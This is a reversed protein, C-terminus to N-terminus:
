GAQHWASIIPRCSRDVLARLALSPAPGASLQEPQGLLARRWLVVDAANSALAVRERSQESLGVEILTRPGM